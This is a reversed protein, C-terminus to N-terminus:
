HSPLAQAAEVKHRLLDLHLRLHYLTERHSLPVVVRRVESEIRELEESLSTLEEPSPHDALALDVTELDRYWCYIRSRVRWRYIPPIIKFLPFLLVILPLLMVKMQDLFTATWFPLYRALLPPGNQYYRRADESLPFDVHEPSPFQRVREFIGAGGHVTTATMLLLDSLAPHFNKRVVLSAAPALLVMERSPIDAQLDLAGEPLVLKSLFPYLRTYADARPFSMPTIGPTRMMERVSESEPGAVLLAADVTRRQMARVADLGTLPLLSASTATVGNAKLLLLAIARTGSGEPGVALRKGRLSGIDHGAAASRSFIWLPEYYLSGLSVLADSSAVERVGGQVFAADVGSGPDALLRVNEVSGSTVRVELTIGQRILLERYHLGFQYYAGDSRGTAITFRSPPAPKVFYLAVAFGALAFLLASGYVYLHDRSPWRRVHARHPDAM